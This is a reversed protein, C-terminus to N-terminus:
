KNLIAHSSTFVSFPTMDGDAEGLHYIVNKRSARFIMTMMKQVVSTQVFGTSSSIVDDVDDLITMEVSSMSENHSGTADITNQNQNSDAVTRYFRLAKLETVKKKQQTKMNEYITIKEHLDSDARRIRQIVDNVNMDARKVKYDEIPIKPPLLSKGDKAPIQKLYQGIFRLSRDAEECQIYSDAHRKQVHADSNNDILEISGFGAIGKLAYYASELPCIMEIQDMREPFFISPQQSM